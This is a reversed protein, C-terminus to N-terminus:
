KYERNEFAAMDFGRRIETALARYNPAPQKQNKISDNIESLGGTIASTMRHTDLEFKAYRMKQTDDDFGSIMKDSSLIANGMRATEEATYVQAHKELHVISPRKYVKTGKSDRVAEPGKEAVIAYGGPADDTGEAFAPIPKALVAAIQIAGLVATVAALAFSVPPPFTGLALGIGKATNIAIEVVALTKQFIARKREAARQEKEVKAKELNYANTLEAKRAENDGALTLENTYNEELATLREQRRMDEAENASDIISLASEYAVRKLEQLSAQLAREGELLKANQADSIALRTESVQKELQTTDFGAKAQQETLKELYALQSELARIQAGEQIAERQKLFEEYSINGAELAKNLSLTEIAADQDIGAVMNDFDNKWQKFVNDATADVADNNIRILDQAFQEGLKKTEDIYAQDTKLAEEAAARRAANIQEATAGEQSYIQDLVDASIEVRAIAAERSVSLAQDRTSEALRIENEANENILAIRDDLSTREDDIIEKNAAIHGKVIIENLQRQADQQRKIADLRDKEAEELLQRETAQRKKFAKEYDSQLGIEQAQLQALQERMEYTDGEQKIRLKQAEIEKGILELDGKLQDQLLKGASKQAAFRENASFRLKDQAKNLAQYVQLETKADDVVDAIRDKRIQNELAAIKEALALRELLAAQARKSAESIADLAGNVADAIKDTGNEIGTVAQIGADAAKKAAAVFKGEFLLSVAEGLVLVSKFRSIINDYIAKGVAEIAEIPDNFVAVMLDRAPQLLDILDNFTKKPKTIAEFLLKGFDEVVDMLTEFIAKGYNLVKNLDDQGEVSGKFYATLSALAGAVALIVLGVPNAILLKFGQALQKVAGVAGGSAQDLKDVALGYDGVSRSTVGVGADFEKLKDTGDKVTKQLKKFEASSSGIGGEMAKLQKKAQEVELQLANYSGKALDVGKKAQKIAADATQVNKSLTSVRELAEKKVMEDTADGMNEVEKVAKSLEAKLAAVSGAEKINEKNLKDKAQALQDSAEKLKAAAEKESAMAQANAEQSARLKEAQVANKVILEQHERLTADLSDMDGDLKEASKSIDNLAHAYDGAAKDAMSELKELTLGLREFQEIAKNIKTEDDFNFRSWFDIIEAM